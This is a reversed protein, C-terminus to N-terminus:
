NKKLKQMFTKLSSYFRCYYLLYIYLLKISFRFYFNVVKFLMVYDFYASLCVVKGTQAHKDHDYFCHHM